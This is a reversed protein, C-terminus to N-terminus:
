TKKFLINVSSGYDVLVRHMTAPGVIATIVKFDFTPAEIGKSNRFVIDDTM